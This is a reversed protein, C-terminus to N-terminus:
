STCGGASALTAALTPSVAALLSCPPLPLGVGTLFRLGFRMFHGDGDVGFPRSAGGGGAFLGLFSLYAPTGLDTKAELAGLLTNQFTQLTPSLADVAALAPAAGSRAGALATRADSLLPSVSELVPTATRLVPRVLRLTAPLAAVGPELGVALTRLRGALDAAAAGGSQLSRAAAPLEALTADLPAGDATELADATRATATATQELAPSEGAVTGAIQALSEVASHLETGNPGVAARAVAGVDRTLEPAASVSARLQAPAAGSLATAAAGALVRINTRVPAQLLSWADELPVYASTQSLPLVRNGLPPAAPSGLTLEVYATGEFMLRPRLSITADRHITGVPEELTLTLEAAAGDRRVGTVKGVPVGAVRVDAGISALGSADSIVARIIEHSAFPNPRQWLLVTVALAALLVLAGLIRRRPRAATIM